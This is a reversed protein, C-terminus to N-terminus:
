GAGANLAEVFQDHFVAAQVSLAQYSQGHGAFVAAIAASVEDTGAALVGTTWGAAAANAVGVSSGIGALDRAVAAMLEPAVLVYSM